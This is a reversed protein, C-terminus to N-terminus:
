GRPAEQTYPNVMEICPSGLMETINQGLRVVPVACAPLDRDEDLPLGDPGYFVVMGMAAIFLHCRRTKKFVKYVASKLLSDAEEALRAVSADLLKQETIKPRERM